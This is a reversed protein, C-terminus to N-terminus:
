QGEKRKGMDCPYANNVAMFLAEVKALIPLSYGGTRKKMENMIALTSDYIEKDTM